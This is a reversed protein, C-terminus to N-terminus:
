KDEKRIVDRISQEIQGGCYDVKDQRQRKVFAAVNPRKGIQEYFRFLLTSMGKVFRELGLDFCLGDLVHFVALDAYTIRNDFFFLDTGVNEQSGPNNRLLLAEFIELWKKLRNEKWQKWEPLSWMTYNGGKRTIEDWLDNCNMVIMLAHSSNELSEADLDYKKALYQCAAPMQSIMYDGVRLFPPAFFPFPRDSISKQFVLEKLEDEYGANHYPIGKEELILKLFNGRFKLPWYYITVAGDKKDAMMEDGEKLLEQLLKEADFNLTSPVGGVVGEAGSVIRTTEFYNQAYKRLFLEKFLTSQQQAAPKRLKRPESKARHHSSKRKASGTTRVGAVNSLVPGVHVPLPKNRLSLDLIDGSRNTETLMRRVSSMVKSAAITKSRKPVPKEASDLKKKLFTASTNDGNRSYGNANEEFAATKRLNRGQFEVSLPPLIKHRGGDIRNGTGVRWPGAGTHGGRRTGHLARVAGTVEKKKQATGEGTLRILVAEGKTFLQMLLILFRTWVGNDAMKTENSNGGFRVGGKNERRRRGLGPLSRVRKEQMRDLYGCRKAVPLEWERRELDVAVQM